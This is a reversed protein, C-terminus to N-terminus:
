GAGVIRYVQFAGDDYLLRLHRARFPAFARTFYTGVDPQARYVQVYLRLMGGNVFLYRAGLRRLWAREAAPSAFAPPFGTDRPLFLIHLDDSYYSREDWLYAVPAGAPLHANMWSVARYGDYNAAIYATRSQRGLLYEVPAKEALPSLHHASILGQTAALWSFVCTALLLYRAGVRWLPRAAQLAQAFVAGGV